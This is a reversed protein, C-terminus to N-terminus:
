LVLEGIPAEYALRQHAEAKVDLWDAANAPRAV